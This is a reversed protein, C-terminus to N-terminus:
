NIEEPNETGENTERASDKILELIEKLGDGSRKLPNLLEDFNEPLPDGPSLNLKEMALLFGLLGGMHRLMEHQLVCFKARPELVRFYEKFRSDFYPM